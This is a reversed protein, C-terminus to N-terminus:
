EAFLRDAAEDVAPHPAARPWFRYALAGYVLGDLLWNFASKVLVPRWPGRKPVDLYPLPARDLVVHSGIILAGALADAVLDRERQASGASILGSLGALLGATTTFALTHTGQKHLIWADGHAVLGAVVDFDPLGAAVVAAALGVPSRVGLRRAITAGALAHGIPTAM